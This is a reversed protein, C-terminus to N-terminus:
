ERWLLRAQLTRVIWVFLGSGAAAVFVFAFMEATKLYYSASVIAFGIGRSAGVFEGVIAGLVALPIAIQLSTFFSPLARPVRLMRITQIRSANMTRFLDLERTPVRVLADAISLTIPPIIVMASAAIKSSIGPGFWASLIPAIALIPTSQLGSVVPRVAGSFAHSLLMSVALLWGIVIALAIAALAELFTWMAHTGVYARREVLTSWVDKPPPVIYVPISLLTVAAQWMALLVFFILVARRM